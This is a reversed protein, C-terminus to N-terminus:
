SLTKFTAFFHVILDCKIQWALSIWHSLAIIAQQKQHKAAAPSRLCLFLSKRPCIEGSKPTTSLTKRYPAWGRTRWKHFLNMDKKNMVQFIRSGTAINASGSFWLTIITVSSYITCKLCRSNYIKQEAWIDQRKLHIHQAARFHLRPDLSCHRSLLRGLKWHLM